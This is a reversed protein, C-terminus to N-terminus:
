QWVENLDIPQQSSEDLIAYMLIFSNIRAPVVIDIVVKMFDLTLDDIFFM